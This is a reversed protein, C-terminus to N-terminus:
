LCDQPPTPARAAVSSLLQRQSCDLSASWLCRRAALLVGSSPIRPGTDEGRRQGPPPANLQPNSPPRAAAPEGAGARVAEAPRVRRRPQRAQGQVGVRLLSAEVRRGLGRRGLGEGRGARLLLPRRHSRGGGPDARRAPPVPRHFAGARRLAGKLESAHWKAIFEGPIM